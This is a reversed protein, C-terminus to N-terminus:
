KIILKERIKMEGTKIEIMYLGKSLKSIDISNAVTKKHLVKSGVQNYISLENIKVGTKNSIFLEKKAPNPFITINNETISIEDTKVWCSEEVEDQNNCGPANEYIEVTGNPNALFDCISQADCTSLISNYTVHLNNISNPNINEIGSLSTLSGNDQIHIDGGLFNLGALTNINSLSSNNFLIFSGDISDLSILGDLNILDTNNSIELNSGINVLNNLGSLNTLSLCDSIGLTGASLLSELGSLNNLSGNNYLTFYGGIDILSNLGNLNILNNNGFNLLTIIPINNLLSIIRSRIV